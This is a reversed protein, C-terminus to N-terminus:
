GLISVSEVIDDSDANGDSQNKFELLGSGDPHRSLDYQLRAFRQYLGICQFLLDARILTSKVDVLCQTLEDTLSSERGSAMM